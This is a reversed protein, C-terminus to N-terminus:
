YGIFDNINISENIYNNSAWKKFNEVDHAIFTYGDNKLDNVFDIFSDKNANEFYTIDRFVKFYIDNYKPIPILKISLYGGNEFIYKNTKEGLFILCIKEKYINRTLEIRCLPCVKNHLLDFCTNCVKHKCITDIMNILYKNELCVCCEYENNDNKIKLYNDVNKIIKELLGIDIMFYVDNNEKKIIENKTYEVGNILKPYEPQQFANNKESSIIKKPKKEYINSIYEFVDSIHYANEEM